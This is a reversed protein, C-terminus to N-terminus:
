NCGLILTASYCGRPETKYGHRRAFNCATEHANLADRSPYYGTYDHDVMIAPQEGEIGDRNYLTVMRANLGRKILGKYLQNINM